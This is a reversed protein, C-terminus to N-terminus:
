AGPKYVMVVLLALVALARLWHMLAAQSVYEAKGAEGGTILSRYGEGFRRGLESAIAWLVIAAIVWGDWVAYGEVYIALWIGFVLTGIGGIAWLAGGLGFMRMDSTAGLAVASGLVGAAVLAFAALVHLFLLTDYM